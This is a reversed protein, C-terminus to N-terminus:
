PASPTRSASRAAATSSSTPARAPWAPPSPTASARPVRNWTRPVPLVFVPRNVFAGDNHRMPDRLGEDFGESMGLLHARVAETDALDIGQHHRQNM